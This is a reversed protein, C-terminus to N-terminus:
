SVTTTTSTESPSSSPASPAKSPESSVDTKKSGQRKREYKNIARQAEIADFESEIRGVINEPDEIGNNDLDSTLDKITGTQLADNIDIAQGPLVKAIDKDPDFKCVRAEPGYLIFEKM